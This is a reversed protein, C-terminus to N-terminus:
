LGRRALPVLHKSREALETAPCWAAPAQSPDPTSSWTSAGTRVGDIEITGAPARADVRGGIADLSIGGGSTRVRVDGCVRRVEIRSRAAFDRRSSRTSADVLGRIDDIRIPADVTRAVVGAVSSIEVAGGTTAVDVVFGSPVWVTVQVRPDGTM